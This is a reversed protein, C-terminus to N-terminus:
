GHWKNFALTRITRSTEQELLKDRKGDKFSKFSFRRTPGNVIMHFKWIDLSGSHIRCYSLIGVLWKEGRVQEPRNINWSGYKGVSLLHKEGVEQEFVQMKFSMRSAISFQHVQRGRCFSGPLPKYIGFCKGNARESTSALTSILEVRIVVHNSFYQQIVVESLSLCCQHATFYHRQGGELSGQGM